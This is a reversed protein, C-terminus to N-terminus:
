RMRASRLKKARTGSKMQVPFGRFGLDEVFEDWSVERGDIVLLPTSGGQEADWDILGRVVLTETIRLGLEGDAIHKVALARRLKRDTPSCRSNTKRPSPSSRFSTAAPNGDRLEFADLAVGRWSFTRFHFEHPKGASDTTARNSSWTSSDDHGAATAAEYQLLSSLAAQIRYGDLRLRRGRLEACSLWLRASSKLM